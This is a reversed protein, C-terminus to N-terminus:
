IASKPSLNTATRLCEKAESNRGLKSLVYAKNKWCAPDKQNLKIAEDYCRVADGFKGQRSLINGKNYWLVYDKIDIKIAKDYCDLAEDYMVLKEYVKAKNNWAIINQSDHELVLDYQSIAKNYQGLSFFHNAEKIAIKTNFISTTPPKEVEPVPQADDVQFRALIIDGSAAVKRIPKQNPYVTTVKDYLYKGLTDPTVVGKADAAEKDGGLGKILYHTFVSQEGEKTGFAEQYSQSAALICQGEEQLGGGKSILSAALMKVDSPGKGLKAAGSYCSDLITVVKTSICKNMMTTLDNFSFGRMKPFNPDTDSSALYVVDMDPVGHGSYYFLVVDNARTTTDYFFNLIADRMQNGVVKGILRNQDAIEYGLSTLVDYMGNGDNECFSLDHLGSDYSSVAVIMAKKKEAM